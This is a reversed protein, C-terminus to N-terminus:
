MSGAQDPNATAWIAGKDAKFGAAPQIDWVDSVGTRVQGDLYVATIEEVRGTDMRRLGLVTMGDQSRKVEHKIAVTDGIKPFRKVAQAASEGFPIMLVRGVMGNIEPNPQNNSIAVQNM